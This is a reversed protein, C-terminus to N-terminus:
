EARKMRDGDSTKEDLKRNGAHYEEAELLLPAWKLYDARTRPDAFFQKFDGPTYADVNFLNAREVLVTCRIPGKPGFYGTDRKREKTWTYLFKGGKVAEARTFKGPGPDGYPEYYEYEPSNGSGRFRWRNRRQWENQKVAEREGWARRQGLTVTGVKISANLRARYAEFDPPAETAVLARDNDYVLTLAREFDEGAWLKYPPHPHLAMSRDLLGQLVLVLRNHKDMQKKVFASIDDYYVSEPGFPKLDRVDRDSVYDSFGWKARPIGERTAKAVKAKVEAVERAHAAKRELYEGETIVSRVDGAFTEAYLKGTMRVSSDFDPFLKEGFDLGTKLRFVQDGNRIYLFTSKDQDEIEFSVHARFHVNRRVRFALLCRPFPLLRALNADRVLWKDFAKISEFRMGGTEYQALCEEDMYARRQFLHLKADIPAPKGKKIRTVQEILGAYLEVNFIRGDIQEIIPKMAKLQSKHPLLRAKMLEAMREHEAKVKKFLEPLTVEKAKVLATKYDEVSQGGSALVLAQTENGADLRKPGMSLALRKTIEEIEGLLGAVTTEHRGIQVAIIELAHPEFTCVGPRYFDNIHVREYAGNAEHLEVYNSGVHLVCGLWRPKRKRPPAEVDEEGEDLDGDDEVDEEDEDFSEDFSEVATASVVSGGESDVGADAKKEWEEEDLWYWKGIAPANPDDYPQESVTSEPVALAAEPIETVVEAAPLSRKVTIM